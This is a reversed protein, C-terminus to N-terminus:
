DSSVPLGYVSIKAELGPKRVRMEDVLAMAQGRGEWGWSSAVAAIVTNYSATDPRPPSSARFAGGGGAQKKKGAGMSKGKEAAAAAATVVEAAPALEQFNGRRAPVAAGARDSTVAAAALLVEGGNRLSVKLFPPRRQARSSSPARKDGRPPDPPYSRMRDFLALGERNRGVRFCAKMATNYSVQSRSPTANRNAPARSPPLDLPFRCCQFLYCPKKHNSFRRIPYIPQHSADRQRAPGTLKTTIISRSLEDTCGCCVVHQPLYLTHEM